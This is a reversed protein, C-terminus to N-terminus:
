TGRTGLIGVPGGDGLGNLFLYDTVRNAMWQLFAPMNDFPIQGTEEIYTGVALPAWAWEKLGQELGEGGM